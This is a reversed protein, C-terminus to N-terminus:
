KPEIEGLHRGVAVASGLWGFTAGSALVALVGDFGLGSLQFGSGYLGALRAVPQEMMVLAIAILLWAMVGGGAGYWFGNYLFPRRIFANTGGILKTIIIEDRRNQIDLRITNGVIIIVALAFMGAIVFIGRNVIDLIANLRKLWQTDLQVLDAEPLARLENVLREIDGPSADDAPSIVLVAPLPNRDLAELAGGFGSLDKFEALAEDPTIRVIEAIDARKGLVDAVADTQKETLEHKLFVSIRAAGEWSGSLARTNTILVHLGAPLALAIGIVAVTMFSSLPQHYLRGLTNFFVQAHRTAWSGLGGRSVPTRSPKPPRPKM